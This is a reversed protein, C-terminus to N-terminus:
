TKRCGCLIIREGNWKPIGHSLATSTCYYGTAPFRYASVTVKGPFVISKRTFVARPTHVTQIYVGARTPMTEEVIVLAKESRVFHGPSIHASRLDVLSVFYMIRRLRDQSKNLFKNSFEFNFIMENWYYKHSVYYRVLFFNQYCSISKGRLNNYLYIIFLLLIMNIVYINFLFHIKIAIKETLSPTYRRWSVSDNPVKYLHVKAM